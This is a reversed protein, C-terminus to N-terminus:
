WSPEDHVSDYMQDAFHEKSGQALYDLPTTHNPPTSSVHQWPQVLTQVQDVVAIDNGIM